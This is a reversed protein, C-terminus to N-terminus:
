ARPRELDDIRRALRHIMPWRGAHWHDASSSDERVSRLLEALERKLDDTPATEIPQREM